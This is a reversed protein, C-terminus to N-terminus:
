LDVGLLADIATAVLRQRAHCQGVIDLGDHGYGGRTLQGLGLRHLDIFHELAFQRGTADVQLVM